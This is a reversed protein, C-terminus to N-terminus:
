CHQVYLQSKDLTIGMGRDLAFYVKSVNSINEKLFHKKNDSFNNLPFCYCGARGGKSLHNDM